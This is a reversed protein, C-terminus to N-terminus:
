PKAEYILVEINEGRFEKILVYRTFAPAHEASQTATDLVLLDCGCARAMEEPDYQGGDPFVDYSGRLLGAYFPIREDSSIMRQRVLNRNEQLWEGAQRIELKGSTADAYSKYLPLCVLMVVAVAAALRRFRSVALQLRLREFGYGALPLLMVVVVMLYREALFNRSVMYLYAMTIYSFLTSFLLAYRTDRFNISHLGWLLPVLNVPFVTVALIQFLGILYILPMSYRALEFFDNTWQGGPFNREVSKLHNYIAHYNDFLSVSLYHESFRAWVSKLLAIDVVDTWLLGLLSVICCTSVVFYILVGRVAIRREEPKFLARFLMWFFYVILFIVAEFRFQAAVVTFVFTAVVSDLRLAAFAKHGFWLALLFFFLFPADKVVKIALGNAAPLVIFGLCAWLAAKPEFWDKALAYLPVISLSLFTASLIQGALFWDDILLHFLGLTFVYGLMKEHAFAAAVNGQMLQDAANFYRIGDPNVVDSANIILANVVISLFILALLRSTKNSEALSNM